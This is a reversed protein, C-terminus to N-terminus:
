NWRSLYGLLNSLYCYYQILLGVFALFVHVYLSVYPILADFAAYCCCFVTNQLSFVIDPKMGHMVEACSVVRGVTVTTLVMSYSIALGSVIVLVYVVWDGTPVLPTQTIDKTQFGDGPFVALLLFLWIFHLWTILHVMRQYSYKQSLKYLTANSIVTCIGDIFGMIPLISVNDYTNRVGTFINQKYSFLIAVVVETVVLDRVVPEKMLGVFRVKFSTKDTQEISEFGDVLRSRAESSDTNVTIRRLLLLGMLGALVTVGVCSGYIRVRTVNDLSGSGDLCFFNIVSGVISYMNSVLLFYSLNREINEVLSISTVYDQTIVQVVGNAAGSVVVGALIAYKKLLIMGVYLGPSLLAVSVLLTKYGFVQRLLPVSMSAPISIVLFLSSALYGLKASIGSDELASNLLSLAPDQASQILLFM